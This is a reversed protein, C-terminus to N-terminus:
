RRLPQARVATRTSNACCGPARRRCTAPARASTAATSAPARGNAVYRWIPEIGLLVKHEFLYSAKTRARWLLSRHKKTTSPAATGVFSYIANGDVGINSQPRSHGDQCWETTRAYFLPPEIM